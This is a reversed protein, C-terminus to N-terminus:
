FRNTVEVVIEDQDTGTARGTRNITNFYLRLILELIEENTFHKQIDAKISEDVEWPHLLYADAFRLAAKQAESFRVDTQFDRVAEMM